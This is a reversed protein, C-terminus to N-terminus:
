LLIKSDLILGRLVEYVKKELRNPYLIRGGELVLNMMSRSVNLNNPVSIEYTTMFEDSDVEVLTGHDIFMKKVDIDKSVKIVMVTFM